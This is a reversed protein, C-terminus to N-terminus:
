SLAQASLLKEYIRRRSLGTEQAAGRAADSVSQGSEIMELALGVASELDPLSRVGPALVLTFEGRPERTTWMALADGLSGVWSEEHLKTLERNVSVLRDRDVVEALSELDVLLRHPSAFIVVQRSEDAIASLAATRENGKRPLFGEFVFRDGGFGSLAVSMSVASPGPIVTVSGGAERVLRVAVAGPDSIGPMGADSVLAVDRGLSVEAALEESRASENGAFLSRTRTDIDFHSLLKATRRTDEAYIVAVKSLTEVLRPSADSLNGIPTACVYLIGPDSMPFM